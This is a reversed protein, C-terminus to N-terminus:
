IVVFTAEKAKLDIVKREDKPNKFLSQVDRLPRFIFLLLCIFTVVGVNVLFQSIVLLYSWYPFFPFLLLGAGEILMASSLGFQLVLTRQLAKTKVDIIKKQESTVIPTEDKKEELSPQSHEGFTSREQAFQKM